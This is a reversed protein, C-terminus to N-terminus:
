HSIAKDLASAYKSRDGEAMFVNLVKKSQPDIIAVTSTKAGFEQFFKDLGMAKAKKAAEASTTKDTVDLVVFTAKSQYDKMLGMITPTIKKCAGCWEAKVVAVIPKQAAKAIQVTPNHAYSPAAQVAPQSPLMMFGALAVFITTKLNM